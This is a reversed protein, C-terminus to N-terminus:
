YVSIASIFRKRLWEDLPGRALLRAVRRAPARKTAASATESTLTARQSPAAPGALIRRKPPTAPQRSDPRAPPAFSVLNAGAEPDIVERAGTTTQTATFSGRLGDGMREGTLRVFIAPNRRFTIAARFSSEICYGIVYGDGRNGLTARGQLTSDKESMSVVSGEALRDDPSGSQVVYSIKWRGSLDDSAAASVVFLFALLAASLCRGSNTM